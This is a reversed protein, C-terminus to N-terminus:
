GHKKKKKKQRTIITQFTDKVKRKVAKPDEKKPEKDYDPIFDKPEFPKANKGRNTNAIVSAIVGSRYDARQEPMPEISFFAQWESLERSDIRNLLDRVTM